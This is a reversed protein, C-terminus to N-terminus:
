KGKGRKKKTGPPSPSDSEDLTALAAAVRRLVDRAESVDGFAERLRKAAVLDDSEALRAAMEKKALEPDAASEAAWTLLAERYTNNIDDTGLAIDLLTTFEVGRSTADPVALGADEAPPPPLFFWGVPVRFGRALAILDDASFQKVRTGKISREVASYSANSWKKGLYPALEAAAEEQTWGRMTRARAVNLAVLQNPTYTRRLVQRVM